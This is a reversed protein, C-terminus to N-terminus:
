YAVWGRPGVRPVASTAARNKAELADVRQELVAVRKALLSVADAEARLARSQENQAADTQAIRLWSPSDNRTTSEHTRALAAYTFLGLAISLLVGIRLRVVAEEEFVPLIL